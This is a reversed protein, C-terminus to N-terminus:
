TTYIKLTSASAELTRYFTPMPCAEEHCQPCREHKNKIKMISTSIKNKQLKTIAQKYLLRIYQTSIIDCTQYGSRSYTHCLDSPNTIQQASPPLNM